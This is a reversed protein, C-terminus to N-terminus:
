ASERRRTKQSHESAIRRLTRLFEEPPMPLVPKGNIYTAVNTIRRRVAEEPCDWLNCEEIPIEKNVKRIETKIIKENTHMCYQCTPKFFIRVGHEKVIRPKSSPIDMKM